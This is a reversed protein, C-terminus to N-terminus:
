VAHLFRPALSYPFCNKTKLRQPLPLCLLYQNLWNVSAAMLDKGSNIEISM